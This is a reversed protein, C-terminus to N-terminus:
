GKIRKSLLRARGICGSTNERSIVQGLAKSMNDKQIM